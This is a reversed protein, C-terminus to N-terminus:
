RAMGAFKPPVVIGDENTHAPWVMRYVHDPDGIREWLEIEWLNPGVQTRPRVMRYFYIGDTVMNTATTANAAPRPDPTPRCGTLLLLLAIGAVVSAAICIALVLGRAPGLKGAAIAIQTTDPQGSTM